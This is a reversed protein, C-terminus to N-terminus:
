RNNGRLPMKRLGKLRQNLRMFLDVFPQTYLGWFRDHGAAPGCGYRVQKSPQSSAYILSGFLRDWIALASGINCDRHKRESSHHLQHQAPSIFWREVRDGWSLWIHSHRLNSGMVNFIFVFINAGLVEHWDLATGFLHYGIGIGLGQSLAMRCAYLYSEVPHSRYITLPSLVEASHHVKHFDWLVPIKHMALHLLYRSLDDLVFLLATFLLAVLWAPWQLQLPAGFLLQLADACALAVPVVTLILPMLLLGRILKNIVLLGLDHRTSRHRYVSAPFLFRILQVVANSGDLRRQQWFPVLALLLASALYGWYIRKNADVLYNGLELAQTEILNWLEVIAM